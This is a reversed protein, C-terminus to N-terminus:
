VLHQERLGSLFEHVEEETEYVYGNTGYHAKKPSMAYSPRSRQTSDILTDLAKVRATKVLALIREQHRLWSEWRVSM